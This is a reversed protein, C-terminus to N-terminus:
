KSLLKERDVGRPEIKMSMKYLEDDDKMKIKDFLDQIQSVPQMNYDSTQYKQIKSIVDFELRRKFLNVLPKGDVKLFDKNGDDIFTLDTM